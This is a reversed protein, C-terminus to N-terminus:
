VKNYDSNMKGAVDYQRVNYCTCFGVKKMKKQACEGGGKVNGAAEAVGTFHM